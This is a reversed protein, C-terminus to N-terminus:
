VLTLSRALTELLISGAEYPDAGFSIIGDEHGGMSFIRRESLSNSEFLDKVADTMLPTGYPINAATIPLGLEAAHNWIVSSHAHLVCGAHADQEYIMSHTMAESSPRVPGQALVKNEKCSCSLVATYHEAKLEPIAGTQTGCIAFASQGDTNVGPLRVSVNGYAYGGYREPNQGILGTMFMITRWANLDALVDWALAPGPMFELQFRIVGEVEGM